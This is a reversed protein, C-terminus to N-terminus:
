EFVITTEGDAPMALRLRTKPPASIRAAGALGSTMPLFPGDNRSTFFMVPKIASVSLGGRWHDDTSILQYPAVEDIFGLFGRPAGLAECRRGANAGLRVGKKWFPLRKRSPTALLAFGVSAGPSLGHHDVVDPRHLPAAAITEYLAGDISMLEPFVAAGAAFGWGVLCLAPAGSGPLPAIRRGRPGAASEASPDIGAAFLRARQASDHAALALADQPRGLELALDSLHARTERGNAADLLALHQRAGIERVLVARLRQRTEEIQHPAKALRLLDTSLAPQEEAVARYLREENALQDGGLLMGGVSVRYNFLPEPVVSMKYGRLWARLFLEWDEWGVGHLETFGGLREFV